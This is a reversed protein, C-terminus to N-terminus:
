VVWLHYRDEIWETFPENNYAQPQLHRCLFLTSDMLVDFHIWKCVTDITPICAPLVQSQWDLVNAFNSDLNGEKDQATTLFLLILLAWQYLMEGLLIGMALSVGGIIVVGINRDLGLDLDGVIIWVTVFYGGSSFFVVLVIYASVGAM